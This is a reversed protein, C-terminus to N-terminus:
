AMSLVHPDDASLTLREDDHFGLDMPQPAIDPSLLGRRGGNRAILHEFAQRRFHGEIPVHGGASLILGEIRDGDEFLDGKTRRQM